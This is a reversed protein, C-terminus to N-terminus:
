FRAASKYRVKRRDVSLEDRSRGMVGESAFGLVCLVERSRRAGLRVEQSRPFICDNVPSFLARWPFVWVGRDIEFRLDCPTSM